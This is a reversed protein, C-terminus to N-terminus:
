RSARRQAERMLHSHCAHVVAAAGYPDDRMVLHGSGLITTHRAHPVLRAAHRADCRPVVRDQDAWVLNVPTGALREPAAFVYHCAFDTLVALDNGVMAHVDAAAIDAEIAAPRASLGSMIVRHFVPSDLLRGRVVPGVARMVRMLAGVKARCMATRTTAHFGIACFATVAAVPVRCALELAVAAGLSHGVVHPRHLGLAAIRAAVHAALAPVADRDHTGPGPVEISVTRAFGPIRAAVEDWSTRDLGAGHLLLLTPNGDTSRLPAAM